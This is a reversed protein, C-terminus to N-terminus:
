ASMVEFALKGWLAVLFISSAIFSNRRYKLTNITTHIYAHTLRSIFYLWALTVYVMDNLNLTLIFLIGLYFLIPTEFLNEFHQTVRILYAPLKAGRNLKFYAPNVRDQLVAKYRLKLMWLAIGITLVVMGLVPLMLLKDM